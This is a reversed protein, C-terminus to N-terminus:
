KKETALAAGNPVKEEAKMPSLSGVMMQVTTGPAIKVKALRGEIEVLEGVLGANSVVRDGRKMAEREVQEKKQRRFSMFLIVLMPAFLMLTFMPSMGTGGAPPASEGAPQTTQAAGPPASKPEVNQLAFTSM